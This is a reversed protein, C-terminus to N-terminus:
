GFGWIGRNKIQDDVFKRLRQMALQLVKPTVTCYCFRLNYNTEKFDGSASSADFFESGPTVFLGYDNLLLEMLKFSEIGFNAFDAWM